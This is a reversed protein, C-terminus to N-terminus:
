VKMSELTIIKSIEAGLDQDDTILYLENNHRDTRRDYQRVEMVYGNAAKFMRFNLNADSSMGRDIAVQATGMTNMKFAEKYHKEEHMKQKVAALELRSRSFNFLWNFM